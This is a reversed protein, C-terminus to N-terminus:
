KQHLAYGISRVTRIPDRGSPKRLARRLRGVHVDVTRPEVFVKAPWGAEIMEERSCVQGQKSLLLVLLKFELPPLYIEKDACTVRHTGLDVQIEAFRLLREGRTSQAPIRNLGPLLHLLYDILRRPSLPRHFQEAGAKILDLHLKRDDAEVLAILPVPLGALQETSTCRQGKAQGASRYDSVIAIVDGDFDGDLGNTLEAELGEAALIYELWLYLEADMSDILIRPV